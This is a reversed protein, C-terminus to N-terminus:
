EVNEREEFKHRFRPRNKNKGPSYLNVGYVLYTHEDDHAINIFHETSDDYYNRFGEDEYRLFRGYAFKILDCITSFHDRPYTYRVSFLRHNMFLVEILTPNTRSENDEGDAKIFYSGKFTPSQEYSVKRENWQEFATKEKSGLPVGFVSHLIQASATMMCLMVTLMVFARKM